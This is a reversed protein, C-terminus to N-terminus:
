QHQGTGPVIRRALTAIARAQLQKIAAETKGLTRAVDQIPMERGFRLAIVHQQDETLTKVAERLEEHALQTEIAADPEATGSVLQEDLEVQPARYSRRHHDSVVNAAVGFLWGRLTTRPANKARLAQLFREFVDATLDEAVERTGVRFAIYRYIPPYYADHIRGLADTDFDRARALLENEDLM